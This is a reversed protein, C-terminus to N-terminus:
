GKNANWIKGPNINKQPKKINNTAHIFGIGLKNIMKMPFPEKLDVILQYVQNEDHLATIEFGGRKFTTEKWEIKSM